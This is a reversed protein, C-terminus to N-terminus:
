ECIECFVILEFDHKDLVISAKPLIEGNEGVAAHKTNIHEMKVVHGNTLTHRPISSNDGNDEIRNSSTPSVYPPPPPQHIFEESQSPLRFSTSESQSLLSTWNRPTNLQSNSDANLLFDPLDM